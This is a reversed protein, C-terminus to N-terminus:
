EIGQEKKWKEYDGEADLTDGSHEGSRRAQVHSKVREFTKEIVHAVETANQNIVRADLGERGAHTVLGGLMTEISGMIARSEMVEPLTTNGFFHAIADCAKNITLLTQKVELPLPPAAQAVTPVHESVPVLSKDDNAATM